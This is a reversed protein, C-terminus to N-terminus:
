RRRTPKQKPGQRKSAKEILVQRGRHTYNRMSDMVQDAYEAPIEVFTFNKHIDIEGILKGPINTKSAISQVINKPQVHDMSGISFFLRAMGDKRYRTHDEDLDTHEYSRNDLESFALSFLVAAVDLSTADSSGELIKEIVPHYKTYRDSNELLEMVESVAGELKIGEVDSITPPQM